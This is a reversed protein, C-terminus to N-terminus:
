MNGFRFAEDAGPFDGLKTLVGALKLWAERYNPILKVAARYAAAAAEDYGRKELLEGYYVWGEPDDPRGQLVHGIMDLHISPIFPAIVILFVAVGIMALELM